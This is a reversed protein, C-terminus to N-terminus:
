HNLRWYQLILQILVGKCIQSHCLCIDGNLVVFFNILGWQDLFNVAIPLIDNEYNYAMM